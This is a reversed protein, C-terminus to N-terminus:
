YKLKVNVTLYTLSIMRIKASDGFYQPENNQRGNLQMEYGGMISNMHNLSSSGQM